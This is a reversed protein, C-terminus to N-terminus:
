LLGLVDHAVALLLAGVGTAPFVEAVASTALSIRLVLAHELRDLHLRDLLRAGAQAACVQTPMPLGCRVVKEYDLLVVAGVPHAGVAEARATVAGNAPHPAGAVVGVM